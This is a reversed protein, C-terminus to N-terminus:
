QNFSCQSAEIISSGTSQLGAFLFLLPVVIPYYNMVFSITKYKNILITGTGNTYM